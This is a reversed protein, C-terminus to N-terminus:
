ALSGEGHVLGVSQRHLKKHFHLAVGGFVLTTVAFVGALVKPTVNSSAEALASFIRDKGSAKLGEIFECAMTNAYHGYADLDTECKGADEYIEECFQLVEKDKNNNRYYYNGGNGNNNNDNDVRECSICENTIISESSYPMAKGYNFKEYTGDPAAYSCVEDMFVGLLVSKGDASCYPGVFYEVEQQQNNQNNNGNYNGNQYNDYNVADEDVDLRACELVEELQFEEEQQGNNGNNNNGNNNQNDQEVCQDYIGENKYCQMECM